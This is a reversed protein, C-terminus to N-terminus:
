KPIPNGHEIYNQLRTFQETLMGDAPKAWTQMGAPLYGAVSYIMELKTAGEAATLQIRMSGTAAISQMPGLGGTMVLSKGPAAFVVELHRVGGGGPFKECFCGMPKDDISLNHASGSFTHAPNWWEGVDHVLKKYVDAPATKVTFAVKVTFGNSSSDLM